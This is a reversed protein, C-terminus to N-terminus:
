AIAKRPERVMFSHTYTGPGGAKALDVTSTSVEEFGNKVYLSRGKEVQTAELFIFLGERDALELGWNLLMVGAGRGKHCSKTAFMDLTMVNKVNPFARRATGFSKGVEEVFDRNIGAPWGDESAELYEQQYKALEEQTHVVPPYTEKLPVLVSQPLEWRAYSVMEGSSPDVAKMHWRTQNQLGKGMRLSSGSVAEEFTLRPYITRFYADSWNASIITEAIQKRDQFTAPLM